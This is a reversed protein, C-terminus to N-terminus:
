LKYVLLLLFFFVCLYIVFKFCESRLVIIFCLLDDDSLKIFESGKSVSIINAHWTSPTYYRFYKMNKKCKIDSDASSLGIASGSYCRHM